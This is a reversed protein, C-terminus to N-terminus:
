PCPGWSGLLQAADGAGVNGDGDLDAVSPGPGWSGLLVAFDGSGVMGDGDLDAICSAMVECTLLTVDFDDVGAEVVSGPAPDQTIFRVQVQSTLSVFDSVVFEHFVWGGATGAGAPGVTEVNVWTSGDDTVDVTFSETNPEAGTGNSFWRWYSIMADGGASLDVVPSVLTTTGSDVDNDGLGGGVLGQGTVFCDTGAVTHDDEPQADTGVPNVREWVGTTATDGPVGLTWGMPAEAPDSFAVQIEGVNAIFFNAPAGNPDTRTGSEVTDASVFFEPMDVCEAGPLSAEYLTGGLPTLPTTLFVGGDFRYHLTESGGVLTEDRPDITVNFMVSTEPSVLAPPTDASINLPLIGGQVDGTMVLAFGQTGSNVAAGRVRITWTGTSPSNLHVQEVNNRDDKAGGLISVGGSFVNGLFIQGTPSEVELDLDNVAALAAGSAGPADTFAMTVRLQESSSIVDITREFQQGTSLGSANRMDEIQLKRADGPFFLANDAQVRGWGEGNSPYGAIGTMDVASNLLTAKLLAGTPTLGDPGTAVGSPFYGDIYYQRVLLATGAVAPCAMSTGTLGTTSCATGALSSQTSCGPAFIEPKRRSDSTPGTGGSCFNGQNPTDQSAGVALLNKANEPNKLTGTNTVAFLVLHDENNRMFTDVGVPLSNYSTTGDDGWSNTHVFAGQSAHLNLNTQMATGSFGPVTDYVLKGGYAVGRTNDNAGNDGVATGAVHTGHTDVPTTTTNYAVIKRHGAGFPGGDLFSCHNADVRGDMVGVIQGEGHIGNDYLPTANVTSSQVIWRDTSNRYTIEPAEEVFRIADLETLAGVSQTPISVTFAEGYGVKGRHLVNAGNIARIAEITEVVEILDADEFLMVTLLLDGAAALAQREKTALARTGIEPALKWTKNYEGHWRVFDLQGALAPDANNLTAVFANTPLYAGLTVGTAELKTRREPTMPGDLQLVFRKGATATEISAALEVQNNELQYTGTRLYLHDMEISALGNPIEVEIQATAQGALALLCAAGVFGQSIMRVRLM